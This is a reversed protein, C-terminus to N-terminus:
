ISSEMMTEDEMWVKNMQLRDEFIYIRLQEGRVRSGEQVLDFAHPIFMEGKSVDYELQECSLIWGQYTVVVDGRFSVHQSLPEFWAERGQIPINVSSQDFLELKPEILYMKTLQQQAHKAQLRWLVRDGEREVIFPKNVETPLVKAETAEVHALRHDAQFLFFIAICLNGLAFCLCFWKLAAM